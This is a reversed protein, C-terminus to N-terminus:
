RSPTNFIAIVGQRLSRDPRDFSFSAYEAHSIALVAKLLQAGSQAPAVVFRCELTVEGDEGMSTTKSGDACTLPQDNLLARLELQTDDHSGTFSAAFRYTVQEASPAIACTVERSNWTEKTTQCDATAPSDALAIHAAISSLIALMFRRM